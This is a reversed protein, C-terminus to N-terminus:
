HLHTRSRIDPWCRFCFCVFIKKMRLLIKKNLCASVIIDKFYRLQIIFLSILQFVSLETKDWSLNNLILILKKLIGRPNYFPIITRLMIKVIMTENLYQKCKRRWFEEVKGCIETENRALHVAIRFMKYSIPYNRCITEM